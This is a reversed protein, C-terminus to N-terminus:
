LMELGTVIDDADPKEYFVKNKDEIKIFENYYRVGLERLSSASFHLTDGNDRLGEASVFGCMKNNKAFSQLAKNIHVYNDFPIVSEHKPLFDGLGGVIIPVDYLGLRERFANMIDTLREEYHPYDEDTCDSEGQHWLIGAVNSTQQALNAMCVAHEFLLGGVKWQRLSTGGDACPILGVTVGKEKAYLDAFSEALNVGATARDPNIPAFSNRWRGNKLVKIHEGLVPEVDDIFGRGSMNSQGILLFSHIM